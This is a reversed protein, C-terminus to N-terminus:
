TSGAARGRRARPPTRSLTFPLRGLQALEVSAPRAGNGRGPRRNRSSGAHDGVPSSRRSRAPPAVSAVLASLTQEVDALHHQEVHVLEVADLDFFEGARMASTAMHKMSWWIFMSTLLRIRVTSRAVSGVLLRRINIMPVGKLYIPTVDNIFLNIM